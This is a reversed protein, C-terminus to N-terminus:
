ISFAQISLNFLTGCGGISQVLRFVIVIFLGCVCLVWISMCGTFFFHFGLKSLGIM